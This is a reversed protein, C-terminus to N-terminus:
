GHILGKYITQTTWVTWVSSGSSGCEDVLRNSPRWKGAMEVPHKTSKKSIVMPFGYSCWLFVMPFHLNVMDYIMCPSIMPYKKILSDYNIGWICWIHYYIICEPLCVFFSSSFWCWKRNELQSFGRCKSQAMAEMAIYCDNGPQTITLNRM